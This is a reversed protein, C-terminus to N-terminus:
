ERFKYQPLMKDIGTEGCYEKYLEYAQKLSIGDQKKMIDFCWEIFNYFIDTQLMMEVPRYNGYYNKGMIKYREHCHYAIAGLEFDIQRGQVFLLADVGENLVRM